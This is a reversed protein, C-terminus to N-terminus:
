RIKVEGFRAGLVLAQLRSEVELKALLNAMHTQVTRVSIQFRQAIDKDSLGDALAQLLERERPTLSALRARVRDDQQRQNAAVQLLHLMERVSHIQEGNALRRVADIVEVTSVSKTLVGAAGLEIARAHDYIESSGTLVLTAGNPNRERFERILTLGRGDPLNLDIIAVDVGNLLPRAEAISGAQGVVELDPERNLLFALPERSSKHDDVLLVRIM